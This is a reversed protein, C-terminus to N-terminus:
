WDGHRGRGLFLLLVRGRGRGRSRGRTGVDRPLANRSIVIQCALPFLAGLSARRGLSEKYAPGDQKRGTKPNEPERIPNPQM